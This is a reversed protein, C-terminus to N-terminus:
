RPVHLPQCMSKKEMNNNEKREEGHMMSVRWLALQLPQVARNRAALTSKTHQFLAYLTLSALSASLHRSILSLAGLSLSPLLSRSTDRLGSILTAM